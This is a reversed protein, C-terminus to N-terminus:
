INLETDSASCRVRCIFVPPPLLAYNPYVYNECIRITFHARRGGGWVRGGKLKAVKIRTVECVGDRNRAPALELAVRRRWSQGSVKEVITNKWM